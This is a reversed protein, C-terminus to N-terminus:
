YRPTMFVHAACVVVAALAFVLWVTLCVCLACHPLLRVAPRRKAGKDLVCCTPCNGLSVGPALVVAALAEYCKRSMCAYM